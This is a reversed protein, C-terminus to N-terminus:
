FILIYMLITSSTEGAAMADNINGSMDQLDMWADFGLKELKTFVKKVLEQSDWQYSLMIHM